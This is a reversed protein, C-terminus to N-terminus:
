CVEVHVQSNSCGCFTGSQTLRAISVTSTVGPTERVGICAHTSAMLKCTDTRTVNSLPSTSCKM